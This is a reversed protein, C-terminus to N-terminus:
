ASMTTNFNRFIPLMRLTQSSAHKNHKCFLYLWARCAYLNATPIYSAETYFRWNPMLKYSSMTDSLPIDEGTLIDVYEGLEQQEKQLEEQLFLQLPNHELIPDCWMGNSAGRRSQQQQSTLSAKVAHIQKPMIKVAM